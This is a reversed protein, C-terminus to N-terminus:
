NKGYIFGLIKKAIEKKAMKEIKTKNLNKDIIWVENENSDFGIDKRSIDNAIIYDCGKKQIKAEANEILNESEACFGIVLQNVKKNECLYRLIDPNQVLELTLGKDDSKKIKQESIKKVKFDGVAATMFVSDFEANKVADFMEDASNVNIVNYPKETKVTSILTVEAGCKHAYDAIAEGMKGSSNNTIYRVPDIKEKTGGATVVIKQGDLNLNNEATQCNLIELTKDFIKNLDALRGKGFTGCALFGDEPEVFEYGANKLKLINDQVIKNEWMGNNMAPAILVPKKFALVTSTLLNDAIGYALKGLTNASCPAIVFIDSDTLAIHEPKWEPIDFMKCYVDNQSLTQLTLKTVFNLANPTLVVRVDANQRKFMRILWCIKYAAIGGTIGILIRKGSLM